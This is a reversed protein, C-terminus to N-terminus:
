ARAEKDAKSGPDAGELPNTKAGAQVQKSGRPKQSSDHKSVSSRETKLKNYHHKFAITHSLFAHDACMPLIFWDGTISHDVFSNKSVNPAPNLILQKHTVM